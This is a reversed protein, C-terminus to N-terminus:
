FLLIVEGDRLTRYPIKNHECYAVEKDIDASEPHDSEYHPLFAYDIFALGEWITEKFNAYPHQTPDDVTQLHELNPSLVCGAASYGGYVFSANGRLEQLLEDLGSLKMAQRLIFTNGGSVWLMDLQQLKARLKEKQGFYNKLDLEEVKLGLNELEKKDEGTFETRWEEDNEASDLANSIYGM